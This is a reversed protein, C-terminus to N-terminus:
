EGAQTEDTIRSTTVINLKIPNKLESHKIEVNISFIRKKVNPNSDTDMIEIEGSDLYIINNTFSIFESPKKYLVGGYKIGSDGVCFEKTDINTNTNINRQFTILVGQNYGRCNITEATNNISDIGEINKVGYENIDDYVKKLIENRFSDIEKIASAKQQRERYSDVIKFLGISISMVLVFTVILEAVIFGKNNVKLMKM